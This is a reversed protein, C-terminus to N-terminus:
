GEVGHLHAHLGRRGRLHAGAPPVPVTPPAGTSPTVTVQAVLVYGTPPVSEPSVPVPRTSVSLPPSASGIAGPAVVKVKLVPTALALAYSTSIPVCGLLGACVQLTLPLLPVRTAEPTVLTTTLQPVLVYVTPPVTVPTAPLPTTRCFPAAVTVTLASPVKAKGAM